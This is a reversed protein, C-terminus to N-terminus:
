ANRKSLSKDGFRMTSIIEALISVAIEAPSVAGINLGIPGHIRQLDPEGFGQAGLRKLRAEHTKRGGLAGVYFCGKRLADALAFDDIKPDHTLAVLATHRDLPRKQLVDEPWDAILDTSAFREPTAFATRPDIVVVDLGTLKAMHVLTQSIHVAGIIVIRPSPVYVNIFHDVGELTIGSSKRSQLAAAVAEGLAGPPISDSAIVEVAGSELNTVTAVAVRNSRLANLTELTAIDM